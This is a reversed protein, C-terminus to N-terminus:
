EKAQDEVRFAILDGWADSTADSFVAVIPGRQGPHGALGNLVGLMGVFFGGHQAGCQVTPHNALSENCPVRNAILAAVAARDRVMLDNLLDVIEQAKM